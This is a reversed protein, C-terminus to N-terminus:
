AGGLLLRSPNRDKFVPRVNEPSRKNTSTSEFCICAGPILTNPVKNTGSFCALYTGRVTRATLLFSPIALSTIGLSSSPKSECPINKEDSYLHQQSTDPTFSLYFMHLIQCQCQKGLRTLLSPNCPRCDSRLSDLLSRRM